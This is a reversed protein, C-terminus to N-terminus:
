QSRARQLGFAITGIVFLALGCVSFPPSISFAILLGVAILGPGLRRRIASSVGLRLVATSGVLGAVLWVLTWVLSTAIQFSRQPRLSLALKPSGGVKSVTLRTGSTPVNVSLSLGGAFAPETGASAATETANSDISVEGGTHVQQRNGQLNSQSVDARTANPTRGAAQPSTGFLSGGLGYQGFQPQDFHQKEQTAQQQAQKQGELGLNLADLQELSKQRRLERDGISAKGQTAAKAKKSFYAAKDEPKAPLATVDFALQQQLSGDSYSDVDNSNSAFFSRNNVNIRTRQQEEDLMRWSAAGDTKLTLTQANSEIQVRRENSLLQSQFQETLEQYAREDADAKGSGSRPVSGKGQITKGITKLNNWAQLKTRGSYEGELVDFLEVAEKMQAMKYALDRAGTTTLTMNTRRVDDVLRANVRDPVYVTWVTKAVPIGFSANETQPVVRPVPLDLEQAHLSIEDSLFAVPLTGSLVLRIQFSLDAESAKPLAILHIPKDSLTTHVPRGPQEGVFASLISADAPIELALFQRSRNKCTYTAQTRWTGDAAIVTVLDALNVSAPIGRQRSLKHLKWSPAHGTRPIRLIEVAQDLHSKTLKIPIDEAAVSEVATTDTLALHAQSVNLLVVFHEQAHVIAAAAAGASTTDSPFGIAPAAVDDSSPAPLTGHALLFFENRVPEHSTVTWLTQANPAEAESVQRIGSGEIELKGALWNPTRFVFERGAAQTIHWKIAITYDVFSDAVTVVAVSSATLRPVAQQIQLRIPKLAIQDSTFGFQAPRNMRSRLSAPLQSPDVAKWDELRETTATYSDDLWIATSTQGRAIGIASPVLLDTSATDPQKPQNGRVAVEVTGTRPSDLEVTLRRTESREGADVSWDSLGTARVEVILLEAPIEIGVSSRAEGSLEIRFHSSIRTKRRDIVVAHQASAALETARRQVRLQLAIPRASFRYVSVPPTETKQRPHRETGSGAGETAIIPRFEEINTQTLGDATEAHVTFQGDSFVALTGTERTVDVPAFEPLEFDTVSDVASGDRYLEFALRTQDTVPRRFFVRLAPVPESAKLEWGALDPGLVRQVRLGKPLRFEMENLSGQRVRVLHGTRLTIGADEICISLSSEVHVIRHIAGREQQPRWSVAVAKLESIPVEVQAKGDSSKSLRFLQSSGNVRIELGEAPLTFFLKGTPAPLLPVHFEGAPGTQQVPVEFRVDVVHVGPQDILIDQQFSKTAANRHTQLSAVANDLRVETLVVDGIPISVAIQTRRFSHVVFRGRIEVVSQDPAAESKLEAVYYVESVAGEAPAQLTPQSDPHALNRLKLFESHPILVQEASSPGKAPDYPVVITPTEPLPPSPVSADEATKPVTPHQSPPKGAFVAPTVCLSSLILLAVSTSAAAKGARWRRLRLRGRLSGLWEVIARICWLAVGAISGLLVGDLYVCWLEPLLSGAAMPVTIGLIGLVARSKGSRNRCWWFLLTIVAFLAARHLMGVLRDAKTVRLALESSKTGVYRFDKSAMGEPVGFKLALSLLGKGVTAKTDDMQPKPPQQPEAQPVLVNQNGAGALAEDRPARSQFRATEGAQIPPMLAVLANPTEEPQQQPQGGVDSFNFPQGSRRQFTGQRSREEVVVGNTNAAAPQRTLRSVDDANTGLRARRRMSDTEGLEEKLAEDSLMGTEAPSAFEAAGESGSEPIFFDFSGQRFAIDMDPTFTQEGSPAVGCGRWSISLMLVLFVGLLVFGLAGSGICGLCGWRRYGGVVLAVMLSVLAICIANGALQQASPITLGHQISGFLSFRDLDSVAEFPGDVGVLCQTTPYNVTWRHELVEVDLTQGDGSVAGLTPPKQEVQGLAGDADAQTRYFLELTHRSAPIIGSPLPILYDVAATKQVVVPQGDILTAWLSASEPLRLSLSQVGAVAFLCSAHHQFADSHGLVSSIEFRDCVARPVALREFRKDSVTMQFDRGVYRYAAVIREQPSYRVAPLDVPDVTALPQGDRDVATVTLQQDGAGELAVYGNQWDADPVSLVPPHFDSAEGRPVIVDVAVTMQGVATRDFQLTWLHQGDQATKSRQEMITAPNDYTSFRLDEGVTDPLSLVLTQVGGGRIQLAAELHAFLHGTELRTVSLVRASIRSPSRSIRLTGAFRTDQYTFGLRGGEVKIQAPDLGTVDVPVLDLSEDAKVVYSGEVVSAQPLRVEPVPINVPEERVPWGEPDRHASVQLQREQGPQLAPSLPIRIRHFGAEHPLVRWGVSTGGLAVDTILWDAPLVVDIEYLPVFVTQFSALTVLDLGAGVDLITSLSAQIEGSKTETVFSLSFDEHWAEFALIRDFDSRSTEASSKATYSGTRPPSSADEANPLVQRISEAQVQRLRVGDPYRVVIRGVHSTAAKVHISPVRWAEENQERVVGRLTINRADDIPERFKMLLDRVGGDKAPDTLRWSELGSADVSLVELGSPIGCTLEDLPKGFVQLGSKAEWEIEGPAVDVTYLSRVFLMTEARQERKRETFLLAVHGASGPAFRYVAPQDDAVPRKLALGSVVLHRGAPVTVEFSAAPTGPLRFSASRDSGAADLRVSLELDLSATGTKDHFLYLEPTKPKPTSKQLRPTALALRAPKGNLTAKEVSVREFPLRLTQWGDAVQTFQITAQIQLHEDAVTAKYEAGTVVIPEAVDPWRTTNKRAAQLLEQFEDRSMLVSQPDQELVSELEDIPVYLQRYESPVQSARVTPRSKEAEVTESKPPAGVACAAALSFAALYFVATLVRERQRHFSIMTFRDSSSMYTNRRIYSVHQKEFEM